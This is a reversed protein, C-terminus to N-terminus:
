WGRRASRLADGWTGGEDQVNQATALVSVADPTVEVELGTLSNVTACATTAAEGGGEDLTKLVDLPVGAWHLAHGVICAPSKGQPTVYTCGPPNFDPCKKIASKRRKARPDIWDEGKKAVARELLEIAKPKDIVTSM